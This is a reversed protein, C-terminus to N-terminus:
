PTSPAEGYRSFRAQWGREGPPEGQLGDSAAAVNEGDALVQVAGGMDNAEVLAFLFDHIAADVTDRVLRRAVAQEKADLKALAAQLKKRAPAKHEGKLARDAHEFARDRLKEMVLKGFTDLPKGM